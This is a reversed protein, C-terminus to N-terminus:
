SHEPRCLNEYLIYGVWHGCRSKVQWTDLNNSDCPSHYSINILDGQYLMWQYNGVLWLAQMRHKFVWYRNCKSNGIVGPLIPVNCCSDIGGATLKRSVWVRYKCYMYNGFHEVKMYSWAGVAIHWQALDNILIDTLWVKVLCGVAFILLWDHRYHEPRTSIKLRWLHTILVSAFAYKGYRESFM